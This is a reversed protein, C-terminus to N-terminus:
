INMASVFVYVPANLVSSVIQLTDGSALALAAYNTTIATARNIENATAATTLTILTTTSGGSVKKVFIQQGAGLSGDVIFM